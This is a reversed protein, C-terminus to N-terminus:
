NENVGTCKSMITESLLFSVLGVCDSCRRWFPLVLSCVQSAECIFYRGACAVDARRGCTVCIGGNLDENVILEFFGDKKCLFTMNWCVGAMAVRDYDLCVISCESLLISIYECSDLEEVGIGDIM